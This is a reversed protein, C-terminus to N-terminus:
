GASASRRATRRAALDSISGGGGGANKGVPAPGGAPKKGSGAGAQAQRIEAVIQKLATAQLRAEALAKDIVLFVTDTDGREDFEIKLWERDVGLLQGDLKDLRDAMRCAELLLVRQLPPLKGEATVERWLALGSLDLTPPELGSQATESETESPAESPTVAPCRGPVCLGHDGATHRRYRKNILSRSEAM